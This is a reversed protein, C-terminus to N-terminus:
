IKKAIAIAASCGTQFLASLLSHGQAKQADEAIALDRHELEEDRYVQILSCLSELSAKNDASLSASPLASLM